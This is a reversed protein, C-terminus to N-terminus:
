VALGGVVLYRTKKQAMSGTGYKRPMYYYCSCYYRRRCGGELSRGQRAMDFCMAALRLSRAALGDSSLLELEM